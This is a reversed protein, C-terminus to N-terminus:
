PPRNPKRNLGAQRGLTKVDSVVGRGINTPRWIIALLNTKIRQISLKLSRWPSTAQRVWSMLLGM